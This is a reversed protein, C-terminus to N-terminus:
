APMGVGRPPDSIDVDVPYRLGMSTVDRVSVAIAGSAAAHALADQGGLLTLRLLWADADRYARHWAGTSREAQGRLRQLEPLLIRLKRDLQDRGRAATGIRRRLWLRGARGPPIRTSAAM